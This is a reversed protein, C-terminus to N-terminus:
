SAGNGVTGEQKRREFCGLVAQEARLLRSEDPPLEVLQGRHCRRLTERCLRDVEARGSLFRFGDEVGTQFIPCYLILDYTTEVREDLRPLADFYERYAWILYLSSDVVFAKCGREASRQWEREADFFERLRQQDALLRPWDSAVLVGFQAAV